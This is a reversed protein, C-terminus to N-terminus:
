ETVEDFYLIHIKSDLLWADLTRASVRAEWVMVGTPPAELHTADAAMDRDSKFPPIYASYVRDQNQSVITLFMIDFM